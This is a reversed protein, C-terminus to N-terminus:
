NLYTQPLSIGRKNMNKVESVQLKSNVYQGIVEEQESPSMNSTNPLAGSIRKDISGKLNQLVRTLGNIGMSSGATVLSENNLYIEFNGLNNHIDLVAGNELKFQGRNMNPNNDESYLRIWDLNRELKKWLDPDM